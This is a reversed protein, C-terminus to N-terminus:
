ISNFKSFLKYRLDLNSDMHCPVLCWLIKNVFVILRFNNGWLLSPFGWSFVSEAILRSIPFIIQERCVRPFRGCLSEKFHHGGERICIPTPMTPTISRVLAKTVPWKEDGQKGDLTGMTNGVSCQSYLMYCTAYLMYCTYIYIHIHMYATM